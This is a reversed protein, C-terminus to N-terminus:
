ICDPSKGLPVGYTVTLLPAAVGPIQIGHRHQSQVVEPAILKLM